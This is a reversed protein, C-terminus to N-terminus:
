TFDAGPKDVQNRGSRDPMRKGEAWWTRHEPLDPGVGGFHTDASGAKPHFPNLIEDFHGLDFMGIQDRSMTAKRASSERAPPFVTSIDLYDDTGTNTEARWGGLHAQPVNHLTQAHKNAYTQIDKGSAPSPVKQEFGPLSVSYGETPPRKTNVNMTFGGNENLSTSLDDFQKGNLM